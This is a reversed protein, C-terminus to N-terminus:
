TARPRRVYVAAGVAAILGLTGALSTAAAASAAWIAREKTDHVPSLFFGIGAGLLADIMPQGTISRFLPSCDGLGDPNTGLGDPNPAGMVGWRGVISPFAGLGDPNVNGVSRIGSCGCGGLGDVAKPMADARVLPYAAAHAVQEQQGVPIFM